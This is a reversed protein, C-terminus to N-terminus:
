WVFGSKLSWGKLNDGTKGDRISLKTRDRKCIAAWAAFVLREDVNLADWRDPYVYAVAMEDTEEGPGGMRYLVPELERELEPKCVAERATAIGDREDRDVTTPSSAPSSAPSSTSPSSGNQRSCYCYGFAGIILLGVLGRALDTPSQEKAM